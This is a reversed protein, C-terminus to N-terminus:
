CRRFKRRAVLLLPVGGAIVIAAGPVPVGTAKVATITLVPEPYGNAEDGQLSNFVYAVNSDAAFLEMSVVNGNMVDNVVGPTLTLTYTAEENTSGDFSFTGLSQDSASLYNPLTNYTIGDTTPDRPNGTGEVWSNNQM